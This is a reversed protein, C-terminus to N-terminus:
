LVAVTGEHYVIFCYVVDTSSIKANLLRCISVEIAQDSLNDATDCCRQTEISGEIHIQSLELGIEDWVRPDMEWQSCKPWNDIRFLSIM